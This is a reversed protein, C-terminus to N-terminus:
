PSRELYAPLRCYGGEDDRFQFLPFIVTFTSGQGVVSEVEICGGYWDVLDKVIVLGLGTGVEDSAKANPARYFEEFLHPLSEEPIGIGDDIVEVEIADELMRMAVTVNGGSPTYKIANGVLNVFIRDLGEETGWVVLEECCARHVLTVGKEEARPHLSLVARGVSSNLVVAEEEAPGTAKGAALDLLDNVLSELFDLRRSIRGFIEAQKDSMKGAYGKLVGRVLSQAVAVPSRLEHTAVRIFHAKNAELAELATAARIAAVAAAGLDALPSLLAADEERFRHPATAYVHLTGIPDDEHMLPVCLVSGYGGPVNAARPDTCADAVIVLRGSLAEEDLSSREVPIPAVPEQLQLASPPGSVAAVTLYAGGGDLDLDLLRVAAADAQLSQRIGDALRTLVQDLEV